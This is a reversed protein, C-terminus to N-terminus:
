DKQPINFSIDFVKLYDEIPDLGVEKRRKNVYEPEFLDWLKGDMVQSGYIQPKGEYLLIRDKTLAIMSKDIDGKEASQELIPLYKKMFFKDSHQIVLWIAMMQEQSVEALTPMGCKEILNVIIALNQEDQNNDINQRGGAQDSEYVKQLIQQKDTCDIEVKSVTPGIDINIVKNIEARLKKDEPTAKRFIAEVVKGEANAYPVTWYEEIDKIKALSARSIIAGKEDKLVVDEAKGLNGNKAREIMEEDSLKTLGKPVYTTSKQQCAAMSLLLTFLLLYSTKM